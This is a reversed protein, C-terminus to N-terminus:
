GRLWWCGFHRQLGFVARAPTAGNALTQEIRLAVPARRSTTQAYDSQAPGGPMVPVIDVLPRRAVTELRSVVAYAQRTSMGPWHYLGALRNPDNAAIAEGVEFVLDRLTRACGGRYTAVAPRDPRPAQEVAGLTDCRRDTYIVQADPTVCRRVQAM